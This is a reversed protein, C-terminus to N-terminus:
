NPNNSLWSVYNELLLSLEDINLDDIYNDVKIKQKNKSFIKCILNEFEEFSSNDKDAQLHEIKRLVKLKAPFVEVTISTSEETEDDECTFTVTFFRSNYNLNKDSIKFM